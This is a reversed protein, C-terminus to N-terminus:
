QISGVVVNRAFFVIRANATQPVAGEMVDVFGMANDIM